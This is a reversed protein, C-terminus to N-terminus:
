GSVRGVMVVPGLPRRPDPSGGKGELSVAFAQVAGPEQLGELRLVARGAADPRILGLSSPGADRIAWLEFDSGPPATLSEFVILARGSAPDYAARARLARAGDPTPAFDVLRATPSDLLAGWRKEDELSERLRAIQREGSALRARLREVERWAVLTTAALLAAAAGWAWIAPRSPPRGGLRIARSSRRPSEAGLRDLVRARLTAPPAVPPVSMALAVVGASLAALERECTACGGALHAELELRDAEDISGLALAACLELHEDRHARM